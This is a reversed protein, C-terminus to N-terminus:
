HIAMILARTIHCESRTSLWIFGNWDYGHEHQLHVLHAFCGLGFWAILAIEAWVMYHREHELACVGYNHGGEVNMCHGCCGQGLWPFTQKELAYPSWRTWAWVMLINTNSWEQPFVEFLGDGIGHWTPLAAWHLLTRAGSLTTYSGQLTASAQRMRPDECVQSYHASSLRSVARFAHKTM